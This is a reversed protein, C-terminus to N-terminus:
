RNGSTGILQSRRRLRRKTWNVSRTRQSVPLEDESLPLSIHRGTMDYLRLQGEAQPDLTYGLFGSSGRIWAHRKRRITLERLDRKPGGLSRVIAKGLAKALLPPVANGVQTYQPVDVRRSLDSTTRKGLFVYDDDFSQLRAMERVTPIRHRQYHVYDDPLALIASSSDNRTLRRMRQKGSRHSEPISRITKGPVLRRFMNVTENRHKTALHNFLLNSNRRRQEQYDSSSDRYTHCELGASLFALDGIADGVTVNPLRKSSNSKHFDSSTPIDSSHTIAPWEFPKELSDELWGVLVFRRRRQPVGYWVANLIPPEEPYDDSDNDIGHMRYGLEWFADLISHMAQGKYLKAFGPVNEFLFMSPRFHDVVRLFEEFLKNRPDNPDQKGAPSFGQCPPGGVVLDVNTQGTRNKLHSTLSNLSLERIDCCLVTTGPHNFAHTLAPHPHNEVAVAVNIGAALLGESLGGAGSFLDIAVPCGNTNVM